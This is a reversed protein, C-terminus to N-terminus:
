ANDTVEPNENNEGFATFFEILDEGLSALEKNPIETSIVARLDTAGLGEYIGAYTGTDSQITM